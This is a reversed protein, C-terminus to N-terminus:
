EQYIAVKYGLNMEFEMVNLYNKSELRQTFQNQYDGPIFYKLTFFELVLYESRNLVEDKIKDRVKWTFGFSCGFTPANVGPNASSTQIRAIGAILRLQIITEKIQFIKGLSLLYYNLRRNKIETQFPISPFKEQIMSRLLLSYGGNGFISGESIQSVKSYSEGSVYGISYTKFFFFDFSTKTNPINSFGHSRNSKELEEKKLYYLINEPKISQNSLINSYLISENFTSNNSDNLDNRFYSFGLSFSGM